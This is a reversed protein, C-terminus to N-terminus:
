IRGAFTERGRRGRRSFELTKGPKETANRKESEVGGRMSKVWRTKRVDRFYAESFQPITGRERRTTEFDFRNLDMEPTFM